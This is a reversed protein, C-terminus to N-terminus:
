PDMELQPSRRPKGLAAPAGIRLHAFHGKCDRGRLRVFQVLCASITGHVVTRTANGALIRAGARIRMPWLILDSSVWTAM